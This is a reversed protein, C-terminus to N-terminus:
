FSPNLRIKSIELFEGWRRSNRVNEFFDERIRTAWLIKKRVTLLYISKLWLPWPTIANQFEFNRLIPDIQRVVSICHGTWRARATWAEIFTRLRYLAALCTKVRITHRPRTCLRWSNISSRTYKRDLERICLCSQFFNHELPEWCFSITQWSVVWIRM